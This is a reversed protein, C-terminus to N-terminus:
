WQKQLEAVQEPVTIKTGINYKINVGPALGILEFKPGKKKFQAVVFKEDKTANFWYLELVMVDIGIQQSNNIQYKRTITFLPVDEKPKRGIWVGFQKFGMRYVGDPADDFTAYSINEIAPVAHKLSDTKPTSGVNMDVDLEGFEDSKNGYYIEDKPSLLHFDVDSWSNWKMSFRLEADSNGGYKKVLDEIEKSISNGSRVFSGIPLARCCSM